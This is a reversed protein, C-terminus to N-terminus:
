LNFKSDPLHLAEVLHSKVKSFNQIYFDKLQDILENSLKEIQDETLELQLLTVKSSLNLDKEVAGLESEVDFSERVSTELLDTLNQIFLRGSQAHSMKFIGLLQKMYYIVIKTSIKKNKKFLTTLIRTFIDISTKFLSSLDDKTELNKILLNLDNSSFENKLVRLNKIKNTLQFSKLYKFGLLIGM